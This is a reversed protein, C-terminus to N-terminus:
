RVTVRGIVVADDEIRPYSRRVGEYLSAPLRQRTRSEYMGAMLLYRGTPTRRDVQLQHPDRVV